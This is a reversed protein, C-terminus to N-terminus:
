LRPHVPRRFDFCAVTCLFFLLVWVIARLFLFVRLPNYYKFKAPLRDTEDDGYHRSYCLSSWMLESNLYFVWISYIWSNRRACRCSRLVNDGVCPAFYTCLFSTRDHHPWWCFCFQFARISSHSRTERASFMGYVFATSLTGLLNFLVRMQM